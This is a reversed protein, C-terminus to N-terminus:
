TLQPTDKPHLNFPEQTLVVGMRRPPRSSTGSRLPPAPLRRGLRRAARTKNMRNM